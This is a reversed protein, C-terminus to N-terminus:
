PAALTLVGVIAMAAGALGAWIVPGFWWPPRKCEDM